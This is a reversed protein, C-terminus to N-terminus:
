WLAYSHCVSHIKPHMVFLCHIFLMAVILAVKGSLQIM